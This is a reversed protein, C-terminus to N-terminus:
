ESTGEEQTNGDANLLAQLVEDTGILVQQGGTKDEVVKVELGYRGAQQVVLAGFEEAPDEHINFQLHEPLDKGTACMITGQIEHKLALRALKDVMRIIRHTNSM